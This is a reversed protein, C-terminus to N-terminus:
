YDWGYNPDNENDYNSTTGIDQPTISITPNDRDEEDQVTSLSCFGGETEVGTRKTVPPVYDKMLFPEQRNNMPNEGSQFSAGNLEEKRVM